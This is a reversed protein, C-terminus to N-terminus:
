HAPSQKIVDISDHQPSNVLPSVEYAEMDDSHCPTLLSELFASDQNAPDLWDKEHHCDLIVPMRDHINAMFANPRTTIITCTYVPENSPSIWKEWLGAFSFLENSKLKIRMPQKRKSDIRKWEYFSDAPIICRKSILPKRFSPKESLTEARANIMKYGIKEDKAWPPIFGWRLYGLRQSAGDNIVALVPQSPAINYSPRYQEKPIMQDIDFRDIITEYDAFLTFRGCM